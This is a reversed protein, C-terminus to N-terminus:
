ITTIIASERKENVPYIVLNSKRFLPVLSSYTITGEEDTRRLTIGLSKYRDIIEKNPHGYRNKKGVSIIAEKPRVQELFPLCSSTNSGHHGVKLVDCDLEPHDKMIALEIVVPADGMFLWKKGMFSTSLVLSEENEAEGGYINYNTLSISGFSLPFASPSDLYHDVRFHKQLSPAAGIHDYDGHTAILYDLHFIHNKRLFPIDVEKAMDFALNGGTDILLAHYGERLLIADGQGVNIFSVQNSFANGLPLSHVLFSLLGGSLIMKKLRNAGIESAALYFILGLYYLLTLGLNWAGFPIELDLPELSKLFGAILSAYGNLLRVAPLSLYSVFGLFTFPYILPALLFSYLPSLLHFSGQESLLPLMFGLVFLSIAFDKRKGPFKRFIDQSLSLVFSLGYGFLFGSSMALYPNVLLSIVGLFSLLAFRSPPEANKREYYLLVSRLLYVRWIGVKYFAFPLLLSALLWSLLHVQKDKLRLSFVKEFGRLFGGYLVGSSSLFYLCGLGSAQQILDLSYDRHDFLLSDL